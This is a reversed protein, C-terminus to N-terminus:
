YLQVVEAGALKGTNTLTFSVAISDKMNMAKKSLALNTYSFSVLKNWPRKILFDDIWLWDLNLIYIFGIFAGISVAYISEINNYNIINTTTLYKLAGYEVFGIPGGGALILHKITM